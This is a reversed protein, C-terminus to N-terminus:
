SLSRGLGRPPKESRRFIQTMDRRAAEPRGPEIPEQPANVAAGMANMM